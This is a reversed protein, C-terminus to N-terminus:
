QTTRSDKSPQTSLFFNPLPKWIACESDVANSFLFAPRDLSAPPIVKKMFTGSLLWFVKWCLRGEISTVTCRLLTHVSAKQLDLSWRDYIYPVPPCPSWGQLSVSKHATSGRPNGQMQMGREIESLYYLVCCLCMILDDLKWLESVGRLMNDLSM